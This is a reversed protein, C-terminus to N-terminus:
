QGSASGSGATAIQRGPHPVTFDLTIGFEPLQLARVYSGDTTNELLLRNSDSRKRSETAAVLLMFGASTGSINRLSLVPSVSDLSFSFEYDGAPIRANDWHVDHMLTFKGRAPEQANAASPTFNLTTVALMVAFAFKRLSTM